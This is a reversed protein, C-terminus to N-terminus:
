EALSLIKAKAEGQYFKLNVQQNISLSNSNLIIKNNKDTVISFGRELTALPSLANLIGSAKALSQTCHILKNQILFSIQKILKLLKEEFLLIKTKPDILSKELYDIKQAYETIKNLMAQYYSAVYESLEDLMDKAVPSVTEAAASPTPARLDAVFDAITTDTEHGVGSIIPISSEFIARAVIETNFAWLDEISGGGRALLIVEAQYHKNALKIAKAIKEPAQEGQVLTPYIFIQAFPYRRNLVHLIDRVAAGTPSTIIGIKEPYLPLKQKFQNDFLGEKLLVKKLREFEQMLAGIGALELHTVILQYDGRPAYLSVNAQVLIEQGDELYTINCSLRTQQYKFFACRVQSQADKLSFYIHGSRPISLNSIEGKVWVQQFNRELISKATQNLESVTFIAEDQNSNQEFNNNTSM